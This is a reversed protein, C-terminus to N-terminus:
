SIESKIKQQFELGFEELDAFALGQKIMNQMLGIRSESAAVGTWVKEEEGLEKGRMKNYLTDQSIIPPKQVKDM